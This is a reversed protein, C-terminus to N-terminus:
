KKNLIQNIKKKRLLYGILLIFPIVFIAPLVIFPFVQDSRLVELTSSKNVMPILCVMFAVVSLPMVFCKHSKIKFIGSLIYSAMYNYISLKLLACPFWAMINFPQVRELSQFIEIQRTFTFYPNWTHKAYEVGLVTMTPILMALFSILFILQATAYTKNISSKQMLFCSFIWFILIESYRTATLFAGKNIQSFTSEVLVPQLISLDMNEISLIFFLVTTLIAFPVLFNAMRSITGAGKYAAYSVPVIMYILLVWTPTDPFIYLSIFVETILMCAIFCFLCFLAVPIIMVKGLIKGLIIESIENINKGRFKNMSFLLPLNLLVIYLFTALLVIWADQNAPPTSLIPMFTFPFVLASGVSLLVLQVSTIVPKEQM